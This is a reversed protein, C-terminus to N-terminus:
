AGLFVLESFALDGLRPPKDAKFYKPGRDRLYFGPVGAMAENADAIVLVGGLRLLFRGLPGSFAEFDALNRCYILQRVPIRRKFVLRRVFVFPQIDGDAEVLLCDCGLAAHQALLDLEYPPLRAAIPAALSFAAVRAKRRGLSFAPACLYLGNCYRRFGSAEIGKHTHPAASINIYAVDKRNVAAASLMAAFGRYDQDLCWSSLHCVVSEDARRSFIQLLVGVVQGDSELLLGYRPFGDLPPRRGLRELAAMWCDRSRSPFGRALCDAVSARDAEEIKRARIRKNQPAAM